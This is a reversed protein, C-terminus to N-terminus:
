KDDKKDKKKIKCYFEELEKQAQIFENLAKEDYPLVELDLGKIRQSLLATKDVLNKIKLLLDNIHMIRRQNNMYDEKLVIILNMRDQKNDGCTRLKELLNNRDSLLDSIIQCGQIIKILDIVYNEDEKICPSYREVTITDLMPLKFCVRKALLIYNKAEVLENTPLDLIKKIELLQKKLDILPDFTTSLVSLLLNLNDRLEKKEKREEAKDAGYHRTLLWVILPIGITGVLPIVIDKCWDYATTSSQTSTTFNEIFVTLSMRSM